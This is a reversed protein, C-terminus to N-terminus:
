MTRTTSKYLLELEELFPNLKSVDTSPPSCSTIVLMEEEGFIFVKPNRKVPQSASLNANSNTEQLKAEIKVLDAENEASILVGGTALNHM